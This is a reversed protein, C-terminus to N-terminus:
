NYPESVGDIYHARNGKAEVNVANAEGLLPPRKLNVSATQVDPQLNKGHNASRAGYTRLM